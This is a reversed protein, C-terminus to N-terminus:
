ALDKYEYTGTYSRYDIFKTYSALNTGNLAIDISKLEIDDSVSFKFTYNTKTDTFPIVVISTAPSTISVTPPAADTGPAVKSIEDIYDDKCATFSLALVIGICVFKLTSKM